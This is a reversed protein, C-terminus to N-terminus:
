RSKPRRKAKIAAIREGDEAQLYRGREFLELTYEEYTLGMSEAKDDRRIAIERPVSKWAARHAKRWPFYSKFGGTGWEPVHRKEKLSPGGNHGIGIRAAKTRRVL